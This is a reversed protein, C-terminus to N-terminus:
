PVPVPIKDIAHEIAAFAAANSASAAQTSSEVKVKFSGSAADFEATLGGIESDTTNSYAAVKAGTGPNYLTITKGTCGGVGAFCALVVGWALVAVTALILRKWPISPSPTSNPGFNTPM